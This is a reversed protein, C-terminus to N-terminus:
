EDRGDDFLADNLAFSRIMYCMFMHRCTLQMVNNKRIVFLMYVANCVARFEGVIM